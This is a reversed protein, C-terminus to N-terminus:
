QLDFAVQVTIGGSSKVAYTNTVGYEDDSDVSSSLNIEGTISNTYIVTNYRMNGRADITIIGTTIELERNISVDPGGGPIIYLLKGSTDGDYIKVYEGHAANAITSISLNVVYTAGAKTVSVAQSLESDKYGSAKAKLQISHAGSSLAEWGSLTTLDVSKRPTSLKSTFIISGGPAPIYAYIDGDRTPANDSATYTDIEYGSKFVPKLYVPFTVTSTETPSVIAETDLNTSSSGYLVKEIGVDFEIVFHISAM